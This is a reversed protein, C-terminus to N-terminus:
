AVQNTARKGYHEVLAALDDPLVPAHLYGRANPIIEFITGDSFFRNATVVIIAVDPNRYTAFDSVALSSTNQMAIDLVLVDFGTFRMADIAATEDQAIEVTNGYRMLHRSWLQGLLKDSEVVLIKM